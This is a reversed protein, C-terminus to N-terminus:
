LSALDLIKIVEMRQFQKLRQNDVKLHICPKVKDLSNILSLHKRHFMVTLERKLCIKKNVQTEKRVEQGEEVVATQDQTDIKNIPIKFKIDVTRRWLIWKTALAQSNGVVMLILQSFAHNM